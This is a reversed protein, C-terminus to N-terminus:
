QPAREEIAGQRQAMSWLIDASFHPGYIAIGKYTFQERTEHEIATMVALFATQVIEQKVMHRSLMWKRGRWTMPEGTVNCAGTHQVQLYPHQDDGGVVFEYGPMGCVALIYRIADLTM